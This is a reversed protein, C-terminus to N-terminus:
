GSPEVCGHGFHSMIVYKRLRCGESEGDKLYVDKLITRGDLDQMFIKYEWAIEMYNM